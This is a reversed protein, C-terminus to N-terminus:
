TITDIYITRSKDVIFHYEQITISHTDSITLPPAPRLQEAKKTATFVVALEFFLQGNNRERAAAHEGHYNFPRGTAARPKKRGKRRGKGGGRKRRKTRRGRRFPRLDKVGIKSAATPAPRTSLPPLCPRCFGNPPRERSPPPPNRGRYITRM